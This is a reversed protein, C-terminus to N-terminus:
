EFYIDNISKLVIRAGMQCCFDGKGDMIKELKLEGKLYCKRTLDYTAITTQIESICDIPLSYYGFKGQGLAYLSDYTMTMKNNEVMLWGYIKISKSNNEKVRPDSCELNTNRLVNQVNNYNEWDLENHFGSALPPVCSDPIKCNAFLLLIAILYLVIRKM